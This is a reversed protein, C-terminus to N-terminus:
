LDVGLEAGGTRHMYGLALMLLKDSCTSRRSFHNTSIVSPSLAELWKRVGRVSKGSFSVANPNYGTVGAFVQQSHMIVDEVLHKSITGLDVDQRAWLDDCVVRYSWLDSFAAPDAADWATYLLYHLLDAQRPPRARVVAQGRATLAYGPTRTLLRLHDALTLPEPRPALDYREQVAAYLGASDAPGPAPLTALTELIPILSHPGADEAVHFTLKDLKSAAM